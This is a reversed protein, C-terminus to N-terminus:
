CTGTQLKQVHKVTRQRGCTTFCLPSWPAALTAAFCAESAALVAAIFERCCPPLWCDARSAAFFAPWSAALCTRKLKLGACTAQQQKLLLLLLLLLLRLV